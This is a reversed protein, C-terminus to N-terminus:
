NGEQRELSCAKKFARPISGQVGAEQRTSQCNLKYKLPWGSGTSFRVFSYGQYCEVWSCNWYWLRYTPLTTWFRKYVAYIALPPWRLGWVPTSKFHSNLVTALVPLLWAWNKSTAASQVQPQINGTGAYIGLQGRRSGWKEGGDTM